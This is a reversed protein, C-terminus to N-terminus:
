LHKRGRRLTGLKRSSGSNVTFSGTNGVSNQNENIGDMEGIVDVMASKDFEEMEPTAGDGGDVGGDGTGGNDDTTVGGDLEDDTEDTGDGGFGNRTGGGTRGGFSGMNDSPGDDKVNKNRKGGNSNVLVVGHGAQGMDDDDKDKKGEKDSYHRKRIIIYVVCGIIGAVLIAVVTIILPILDNAEQKVEEDLEEVAEGRIVEIPYIRKNGNEAAVIVKFENKGLALQQIGVGSDVKSKEDELEVAIDVQTTAEPVTLHYVGNEATLERGNVTIIAKANGSKNNAINVTDTAEEQTNNKKKEAESGDGNDSGAIVSESDNEKQESRGNYTRETNSATDSVKTEKTANGVTVAVTYTEDAQPGSADDVIDTVAVTVWTLGETVGKVTVTEANHNLEFSTTSLEVGADGSTYLEVDASGSEAAVSFSATDGLIVNMSVASVVVSQAKATGVPMLCGVTVCAVVLLRKIKLKLMVM